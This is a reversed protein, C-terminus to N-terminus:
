NTSRAIFCPKYIVNSVNGWLLDTSSWFKEVGTSILRVYKNLGRGVGGNPKYQITPLGVDPSVGMGLNFKYMVVHLTTRNGLVSGIACTPNMTSSISGRILKREFTPLDCKAKIVLYDSIENGIICSTKRKM